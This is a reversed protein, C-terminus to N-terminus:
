TSRRCCRRLMSATFAWSDENSSCSATTSCISPGSACLLLLNASSSCRSSLAPRPGFVSPRALPESRSYSVVPRPLRAGPGELRRCSAGLGLLRRRARSRPSRPHEVSDLRRCPLCGRNSGPGSSNSAAPTQCPHLLTRGVPHRSLMEGVIVWGDTVARQLRGRPREPQADDTRGPRHHGGAAPHRAIPPPEVDRVWSSYYKTQGNANSGLM